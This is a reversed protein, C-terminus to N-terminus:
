NEIKVNLLLWVSMRERTKSKRRDWARMAKEAM